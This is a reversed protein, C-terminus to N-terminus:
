RVVAVRFATNNLPRPDGQVPTVTGLLLGIGLSGSKAVAVTYTATAGAALSPTVFTAVGGALTGGPAGTLVVTGKSTVSTRVNAVAGPGANRVTVTVSTSSTKPDRVPAGISVSLDAHNAVPTAATVALPITVTSGTNATLTLVQAGSLGAPVTVSISATGTQTSGVGPTGTSNVMPFDGLATGGIAAHVTTVRPSGLSTLGLDSVDFGITSGATPAKEAADLGTVSAGRKAFIPAVPSRSKIYGVFVDLDILGTDTPKAGKALETFNDGDAALFSNLAVRFTDTPSVVSGNVTISTIRSGIPLTKDYTYTLNDSLGLALFSGTPQDQQELVKTLQAGTLTTLFLSNAFPQVAVAEAVTIVGDSNVDADTGTSGALKLDARLGGPNTLGLDPKEGSPVTADRAADAVLMGISSEESRDATPGTWTGNPGTYSGGSFARTIDASVTGVPVGGTKASAAIAANTIDQVTKVRPYQAVLTADATTVRNVNQASKTTVSGTAPDVTLVIQGVREGYSGTQLIPRTRGTTDGPVPANFVYERHTHGTFIASVSPATQQVITAFEGGAAVEKELTAGDATGEGAGEHFEAVLVDAEGNAPNGDKLEAAVRNVAEVPDGFSLDAIGPASVLTPTEGTIAGIIGVRVGNVVQVTYGPYAPTTTGKRYINAGLYAWDANPNAPDTGTIRGDLDAQGRDLEHNGIASAQLGLANLVDITPQDPAPKGSADLASSSAYLSAGVNDGASLFLTNAEGGAARLQEVTGAFKVTNADIRGHFDNIDLLNLDFPAARGSAFGVKVPDHDSAAYPNPAYFNTPSYNFRSYELAISEPSNINWVDSGTIRAKASANALVHDLSGSLGSFSYSYADGPRTIDAYGAAYLQQMPDEQAYSNFDGLLFTDTVGAPRVTPVWTALAKAQAVRSANSAGQGDGSDADGPLPGASGKSKFHNVVVLFPTGGGVPAFTQAIPERANDFAGGASSQTGLAHADGQRSVKAPQYILASNIVDMESAAPLDAVASPVFAWKTFGAAANAAATLTGLAEDRAEGLVFSNEVEMLGIVSADDANIASVIKDQQRQLDAPNWAGRPGNNPCSNVTVPTGARDKFSTCGTLQSGLTTFYNLVNFSSVSVDGGVADPAATRTNAFTARQAPPTTDTVQSTPQLKWANNRYDVVVPAPFTVPAGVRVPATQSLYPPTQTNNNPPTLFNTSSGDDLAVTRAANDAVVAAYEASGPRAVETPQILPTTGFALGIEGFNNASFTNSVTYSGTPAYLMSELKERDADTSPWAATTPTVPALATPLTSIQADTTTLETLGNFESITGTVSVSQGITVTVPNATADTGLYTFVADSGTAASRDGGTGGTQLAFGRFGGTPYAATVVGTTTVTQGVLPSAAGTGQIEAITRAGADTPPTVVVAGSMPTPAASTFDKANDATNAFGTRNVSTTNSPAPTPGTGAFTTATTGYGVFDVVSPDTTTAGAALATQSTVLAVKGATGSLNLTGTVDPAPLDTTGGTGAGEAVLYFSKAPISGTLATLQYPNSGTASNYQVSYASLDIPASTTNYLEVFDRKLTAGSNGGGGYVENIVLPSSPSVAAGASTPVVVALGITLAAVAAGGVLRSHLAGVLPEERVAGPALHDGRLHTHHDRTTVRSPTVM